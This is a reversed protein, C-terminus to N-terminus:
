VEAETPSPASRTEDDQEDTTDDHGYYQYDSLAPVDTVAIGLLPARSGELVRKLETIISRRATSRRVVLLVADVQDTLAMTDAVALLPAADILVVDSRQRVERLIEAFARSAIFEGPNAPLEGTGVLHLSGNGLTLGVGSTPRADSPGRGNFM